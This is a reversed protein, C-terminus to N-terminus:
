RWDRTSYVSPRQSSHARAAAASASSSGDAPPNAVPGASYTARARPSSSAAAGPGASQQGARRSSPSARRSCRASRRQRAAPSASSAPPPHAGRDLRERVDRNGVAGRHHPEGCEGSDATASAAPLGRRDPSGVAPRRASVAASSISSALLVPGLASPAGGPGRPCQSAREHRPPTPLAVAPGSAPAHSRATVPNPEAITRCARQLLRNASARNASPRRSSAAACARAARSVAQTEAGRAQELLHVGEGAAAAMASDSAAPSGPVAGVGRVARSRVDQPQEGEAAGVTLDALLQEDAALRGADVDRVDQGLQARRAAPLRHRDGVALSQDLRGRLRLSAVSM